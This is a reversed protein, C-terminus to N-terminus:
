QSLSGRRFFRNPCDHRILNRRPIGAIPLGVSPVERWVGRERIDKPGDHITCWCKRLSVGLDEGREVFSRRLM